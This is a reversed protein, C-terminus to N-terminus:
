EGVGLADRGRAVIRGHWTLLRQWAAIALVMVTFAACLALGAGIVIAVALLLNVLVGSM